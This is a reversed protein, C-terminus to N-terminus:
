TTATRSGYGFEKRAQAAMASSDAPPTAPSRPPRIVSGGAPPAAAPAAFMTPFAAKVQDVATSIAAEDAGPAVTVLRLAYALQPNEVMQGARAPDEVQLPLGARILARETRSALIEAAAAAREQTAATKEAEAAATARQQETLAADNAAKAAKVLADAEEATTVGLQQLLAERTSRGGQDRERAMMATVEAQTFTRDVPPVPPTPVPPVGGGGLLNPPDEPLLAGTPMWLRRNM